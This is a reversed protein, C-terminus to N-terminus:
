DDKIIGGAKRLWEVARHRQVRANISKPDPDLSVRLSKRLKDDGYLVAQAHLTPNVTDWGKAARHRTKFGAVFAADVLEAARERDGVLQAV